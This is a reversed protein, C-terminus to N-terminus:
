GVDGTVDVASIVGSAARIREEALGVELSPCCSPPLPRAPLALSYGTFQLPALSRDGRSLGDAVNVASPIWHVRVNLSFQTLVHQLELVRANIWYVGSYGKQVAAACTANDTFLQVVGGACWQDAFAQVAHVVASM